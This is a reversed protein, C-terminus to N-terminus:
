ADAVLAGQPLHASQDGLLPLLQYLERLNRIVHDAVPHTRTPSQPSRLIATMGVRRAGLVDAKIMDGVFVAQHPQVGIADLAIQFIRRDPKRYRTDSSYIRVPFFELLGHQDMHEDLLYGPIFTNSVIALKIGRDRLQTLTPIVDDAVTTLRTLPAYWIRGLQRLTAEDLELKMRRCQAALLTFANFERQRLRSCVFAWRVAAHQMRCYRKFPPPRHGQDILYQWTTQGAEDLVVRNNFRAFDFLTDGLDFLIAKLM